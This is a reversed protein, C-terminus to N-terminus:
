QSTTVDVALIGQNKGMDYGILSAALSAALIGQNKGMDYGIPISSSIDEDVQIPWMVYTSSTVAM